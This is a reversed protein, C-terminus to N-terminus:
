IYQSLNVVIECKRQERKSDKMRLTCKVAVARRANTEEAM